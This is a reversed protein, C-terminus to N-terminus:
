VPQGSKQRNKTNIFSHIINGTVMPIEKYFLTNFTVEDNEDITTIVYSRNGFSYFYRNNKSGLGSDSCFFYVDSAANVLPV